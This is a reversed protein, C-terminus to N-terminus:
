KGILLRIGNNRGRLLDRVTLMIGLEGNIHELSTRARRRVHVGILDNRRDSLGITNLYVGVIMHIHALRRVIRERGGGVNGGGLSGHGHENWRQLHQMIRQSRLGLLPLMHHLRAASVQHIRHRHRQALLKATIGPLNGGTNLPDLGRQRAKTLHRDTTGRYASAQIGWGIEASLNHGLQHLEGIDRLQLLAHVM